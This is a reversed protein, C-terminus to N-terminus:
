KLMRWKLRPNIHRWELPYMLKNMEAEGKTFLMVDELGKIVTSRKTIELDTWGEYTKFKRTSTNFIGKM